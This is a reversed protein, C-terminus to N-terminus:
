RTTTSLTGVATPDDETSAAFGTYVSAPYYNTEEAPTGSSGGELADTTANFIAGSTAHVTVYGMNVEGAPTAPVAAIALAETDYNAAASVTITITGSTDASLKYSAWKDATIDHTTATFATGAAVAAKYYDVGNITYQFATSAIQTDTTGASLVTASKMYTGTNNAYISDVIGKLETVLTNTTDLSTKLATLDTLVADFLKELYDPQDIFERTIKM